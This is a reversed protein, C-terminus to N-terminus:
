EGIEIDNENKELEIPDKIYNEKAYEPLIEYAIQRFDRMEKKSLETMREGLANELMQNLLEQGNNISSAQQYDAEQLNNEFNILKGIAKVTEKEDQNILLEITYGKAKSDKKVGLMDYVIPNRVYRNTNGFVEPLSIPLLEFALQKYDRKEEESFYNYEEGFSESVIKDLLEQDALKYSYAQFNNDTMRKEKNIIRLYGDLIQENSLYNFEYGDEERVRELFEQVKNEYMERDEKDITEISITKNGTNFDFTQKLQNGMYGALALSGALMATALGIKFAKWGRRVTIDEVADEYEQVERYFRKDARKSANKSMEIEKESIYDYDEEIDDYYGQALAQQLIIRSLLNRKKPETYRTAKFVNEKISKSINIIKRKTKADTKTKNSKPKKDSNSKPKKDLKSKPTVKRSTIETIKNKKPIKTSTKEDSQQPIRIQNQKNQLAKAVEEISPFEFEIDEFEEIELKPTRTYKVPVTEKTATQKGKSETQTIKTIKSHPTQIQIKSQSKRRQNQQEQLRKVFDNLDSMDENRVATM